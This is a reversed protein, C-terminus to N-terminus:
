TQPGDEYFSRLIEIEETTAGGLGSTLMLEVPLSTNWPLTERVRDQVIVRRRGHGVEFQDVLSRAKKRMFALARAPRQPHDLPWKIGIFDAM